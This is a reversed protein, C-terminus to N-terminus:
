SHSDMSLGHVDVSGRWTLSDRYALSWGHITWPHGDEGEMDSYGWIGSYSHSDRSLRNIDM